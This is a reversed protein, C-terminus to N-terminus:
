VECTKISFICSCLIIGGIFCSKDVGSPKISAKTKYPTDNSGKVLGVLANSSEDYDCALVRSEKFYLTGRDIINRGFSTSIDQQTVKPM